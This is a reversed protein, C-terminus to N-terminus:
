TITVICLSFHDLTRSSVIQSVSHIRDVWFHIIDIIFVVLLLYEYKWSMLTCSKLFHEQLDQHSLIITKITVSVDPSDKGRLLRLRHCVIRYMSMKCGELFFFCLRLQGKKLSYHIENLHISASSNNFLPLQLILWGFIDQPLSSSVTRCCASM